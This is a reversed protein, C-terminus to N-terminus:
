PIWGTGTWTLPGKPTQYKTGPTRAAPNSPAMPYNGGGSLPAANPLPGTDASYGQGVSELGNERAWTQLDPFVFPQNMTNLNENHAQEANKRATEYLRIVDTKRKQAENKNRQEGMMQTFGLKERQLRLRESAVDRNAGAASARAAAANARATAAETRARGLEQKNQIDQQRTLAEGASGVAQGIRSGLTDGWQPPQLLSIGAQLLATSVQPDNLADSWQQSLDPTQSPVPAQQPQFPDTLAM